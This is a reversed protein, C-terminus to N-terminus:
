SFWYYNLSHAKLLFKDTLQNTGKQYAYWKKLQAGKFQETYIAKRTHMMIQAFKKQKAHVGKGKYDVETVITKNHKAYYEYNMYTGRDNFIATQVNRIEQVGLKTLQESIIKCILLMDDAQKMGMAVARVKELATEIELAKNREQIEATKEAVKQELEVVKKTAEEIHFTDESSTNLNPMSGHFLILQWKHDDWQFVTSMWLTIHHANKKTGISVLIEDNFVAQYAGQMKPRYATKIVAKYPVGKSQNRADQILKHYDKLSRVKEDAATGFGTVSESVYQNIWRIPAKMNLISVDMM